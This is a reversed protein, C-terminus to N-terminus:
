SQARMLRHALPSLDPDTPRVLERAVPAPEGPEPGDTVAAEHGESM